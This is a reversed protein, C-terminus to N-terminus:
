KFFQDDLRVSLFKIMSKILNNKKFLILHLHVSRLFFNVFLAGKKTVRKERLLSEYVPGRGRGAIPGPSLWHGSGGWTGLERLNSILPELNFVM